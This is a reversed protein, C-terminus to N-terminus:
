KEKRTRLAAGQPGVGPHPALGAGLATVWSVCVAEMVGRASGGGGLTGDM